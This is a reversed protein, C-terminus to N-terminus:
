AVKRDHIRPRANMKRKPHPHPLTQRVFKSNLGTPYKIIPVPLQRIISIFTGRIIFNESTPSISNEHKYLHVVYILM